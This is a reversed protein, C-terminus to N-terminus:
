TIYACKLIINGFKLMTAICKDKDYICAMHLPTNDDANKENFVYELDFSSLLNIVDLAANEGKDDTLAMHLISCIHDM